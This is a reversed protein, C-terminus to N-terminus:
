DSNEDFFKSLRYHSGDSNNGDEDDGGRRKSSKKKHKRHHKKKRKKSRKRKRRRSDEDSSYDDEDSSYYDSSGSGSISDDDRSRRRKKKSKKKKNKKKAEHNRGRALLQDRQRDLERRYEEMKRQDAGELNLKDENDKKYQEWTPRNSDALKQAITREEKGTMVRHLAEMQSSMKKGTESTAPGGIKPGASSSSGGGGSRAAEHKQFRSDKVAHDSIKSYDVLSKKKESM